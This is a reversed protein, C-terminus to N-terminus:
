ALSFSRDQVSAERSTDEDRDGAEGGRKVKMATEVVQTILFPRKHLHEEGPTETPPEHVAKVLDASVSFGFISHQTPSQDEEREGCGNRNRETSPEGRRKELLAGEPKKWAQRERGEIGRERELVGELSQRRCAEDHGYRGM